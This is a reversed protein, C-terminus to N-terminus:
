YLRTTLISTVMVILSNTKQGPEVVAHYVKHECM